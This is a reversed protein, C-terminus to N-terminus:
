QNPGQRKPIVFTWTEQNAETVTRYSVRRDLPSAGDSDIYGSLEELTKVVKDEQM